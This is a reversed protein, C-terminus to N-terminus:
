QAIPNQKQEEKANNSKIDLPVSPLHTMTQSLMPNSEKIIAHGPQQDHSLRNSLNNIIGQTQSIRDLKQEFREENNVISGIM